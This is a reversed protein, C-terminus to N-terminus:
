PPFKINLKGCFWFTFKSLLFGKFHKHWIPTVKIKLDVFAVRLPYNRIIHLLNCFIMIMMMEHKSIM